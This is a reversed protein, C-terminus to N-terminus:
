QEEGTSKKLDTIVLVESLHEFDVAPSIYGSKTLNNNDVQIQSIYGILINPLYKDSINSTVIKDGEVVVNDDDRLQSFTIRNENMLQLSGSVIMTDSSALTMASVNSDDSIVSTVRAWNAGISTIRGVLGGDAIVNMDLGLGDDEGKDIIFSAYWNGTDKAIIRAGVKNYADYEENLEMLDRLKNLEYRNQQLITNEETLLAVQEKLAENERILARIEVIEESKGSLWGGLKSIGNELPTIVYGFAYNFPKAFNKSGFSFVMLLVCIVSLIVLWYKSPLSFREGKNKVIPSM